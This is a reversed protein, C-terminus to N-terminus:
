RFTISPKDGEIVGLNAALEKGILVPPKGSETDENLKLLLEKGIVSLEQDSLKKGSEKKKSIGNGIAQEISTVDGATNPDIGRIVSGSVNRESSIMGQGYIFPSAGLVGPFDVVDKKIEAFDKM